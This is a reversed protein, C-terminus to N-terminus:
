QFDSKEVRPDAFTRLLEFYDLIESRFGAFARLLEIFDLM